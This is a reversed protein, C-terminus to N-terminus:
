RRESLEYTQPQSEGYGPAGEPTLNPIKEEAEREAKGPIFFRQDAETVALLAIM